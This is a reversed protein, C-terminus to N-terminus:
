PSAPSLESELTGVRRGSRGGPCRGPCSLADTTLSRVFRESVRRNRCGPEFPLQGGSAGVPRTRLPQHLVHDSPITSLGTKPHHIRQTPQKSATPPARLDTSTEPRNRNEPTFHNRGGRREATLVWRLRRLVGPVFGTIAGLSTPESGGISARSARTRTLYHTPSWRQATWRGARPRRHGRHRVPRRRPSSV